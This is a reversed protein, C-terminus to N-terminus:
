AAGYVLRACLTAREPAFLSALWAPADEFAHEDTILADLAPDALLDLALALRRRHTWRAAQAAPLRGVQSSRLTLRLAHFGEGLPASVPQDGYWSLEIVRAELGALALATALGAPAGSAHLVVDRERPAATPLRFDVGLRAAVAQKRADVDVLTVETGPHRAALYAVLCGVVGAGVVAVRDGARLEADWLANLATEMNAALVARASPVTTPVPLVADAPVVYASQHPHLCFVDRGLLLGPGAMVRGVSAYGYKVPFPFAGEQFPARMRAHESAPVRGEHVLRESGRSIGSYLAAVLVEGDRPEALRAERLEARRPGTFWLARPVPVSVACM